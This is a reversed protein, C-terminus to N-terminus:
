KRELAKLNNNGQTTNTTTTTENNAVGKMCDDVKSHKTLPEGLQHVCTEAAATPGNLQEIHPLTTLQEDSVTYCMVRTTNQQQRNRARYLRKREAAQRRKLTEENNNGQRTKITTAENDTVRKTDMVAYM